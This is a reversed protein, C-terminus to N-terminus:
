AAAQRRRRRAYGIVGIGAVGLLCLTSPEPVAATVLTLSTITAALSFRIDESIGAAFTFQADNFNALELTTPLSDNALAAGTSDSLLFRMEVFTSPPDISGLNQTDLIDFFFADTTGNEVVIAANEDPPDLFVQTPNTAYSVGDMGGVTFSLSNSGLPNSVYLGIQPDVNQDLLTSEYSIVGTLIDGDSVGVGDKNVGVTVTASFQYTILAARAEGAACFCILAAACAASLLRQRIRVPEGDKASISACVM